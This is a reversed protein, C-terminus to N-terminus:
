LSEKKELEVSFVGCLLYCLMYIVPWFLATSVAPIIFSAEYYSQGILHYIWYAIFSVVLNIIAILITQQWLAYGKFDFLNNNLLYVQASLIFASIGLPAGTLLDLIVGCFWSIEIKANLKDSMSFFLLVLIIFDPRYPSIVAPLRVIHLIMAFFIIPILLLMLSKQNDKNLAM